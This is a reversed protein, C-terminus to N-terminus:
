RKSKNRRNSAKNGGRGNGSQTRSSASAKKREAETAEIRDIGAGDAAEQIEKWAHQVEEGELSILDDEEIGIIQSVQEMEMEYLEFAKAVLEIGTLPIGRQAIRNITRQNREEEAQEREAEIRAIALADKQDKTLIGDLISLEFENLQEEPSPQSNGVPHEWYYLLKEWTFPVVKRHTVNIPKMSGSGAFSAKSLRKLMLGTPEPTGPTHRLWVRMRSKQILPKKSEAIEKKNMDKKLHSTLIVLPALQTMAQMVTAELHFAAQWQEAGKIAGMSSYFQRYKNPNSAVVPHFTNELRTWTDWILVDFQGPEIGELQKMCYQYFELERMGNTEHVLNRYLGITRGANKIDQVIANGKVDDDFFATREPAAGSSFAFWTKGTDPEGTVNIIGTIPNDSKKVKTVM